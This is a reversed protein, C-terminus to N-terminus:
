SPYGDKPERTDTDPVDLRQAALSLLQPTASLYWYTHATSTHGLWTTLLTLTRQPDTGSQYAAVMHRTAFTHRLDHLRPRARGRPSLGAAAAVRSYYCEITSRHYGAGRTTVLLPGGPDIVARVRGPLDRYAVLRRYTTAHVPVLRSTGNKSHRIVVVGLGNGTDIAPAQLDNPTLALAEGVRMGTAALLGILTTMTHGILPHTFVSPCVRLLADLESPTYIFPVARRSRAPLLGRPPVQVDTGTAHLWAAFTRVAGLRMGWWAPDAHEPLRAWTVADATTFTAKGQATLWDCFQGALLELKDLRYGLGRRLSLYVALRDRLTLADVAGPAAVTM